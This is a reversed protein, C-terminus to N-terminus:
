HRFLQAAIEIEIRSVDRPKRSNFLNWDRYLLAVNHLYDGVHMELSDSARLLSSFRAGLYDDNM